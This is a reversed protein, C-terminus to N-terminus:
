DGADTNGAFEALACDVFRAAPYGQSDSGVDCSKDYIIKQDAAAVIYLRAKIFGDEGKVADDVTMKVYADTTNPDKSVVFGNMGLYSQAETKLGILLSLDTHGDADWVYVTKIKRSMDHVKLVGVSKPACSSLFLMTIVALILGGLYKM